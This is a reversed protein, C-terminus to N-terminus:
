EASGGPEVVGATGNGNNGNAEVSNTVDGNIRDDSSGGDYGSDDRLLRTSRRPRKKASQDKTDKNISRSLKRKTPSSGEKRGRVVTAPAVPTSNAIANHVLHGEDDETTCTPFGTCGAHMSVDSYRSDGRRDISNVFESGLQLNAPLDFMATRQGPNTNDKSAIAHAPLPPPPMTASPSTNPQQQNQENIAKIIQQLQDSPLRFKVQDAASSENKCLADAHTGPYAPVFPGKNLLPASSDPFISYASTSRSSSDYNSHHDHAYPNPPAALPQVPLGSLGATMNTYINNTTAARRHKIADSITTVAGAFAGAHGGPQTPNLFM